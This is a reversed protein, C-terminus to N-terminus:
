QREGTIQVSSSPFSVNRVCVHHDLPQMRFLMHHLNRCYLPSNPVDALQLRVECPLIGHISKSDHYRWKAAPANRMLMHGTPIVAAELRTRTVGQDPSVQAASSKLRPLDKMVAYITVDVDFRCLCLSSATDQVFIAAM